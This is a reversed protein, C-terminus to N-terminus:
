DFDIVILKRGRTCRQQGGAVRHAPNAVCRFGAHRAGTIPPDFSRAVSMAESCSVGRREVIIAAGFHGGTPGCSRPVSAASATAGLALVAAAAGVGYRTATYWLARSM